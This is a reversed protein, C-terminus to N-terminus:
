TTAEIGVSQLIGVIILRWCSERVAQLAEVGSICLKGEGKRAVKGLIRGEIERKTSAQDGRTTWWCLHGLMPTTKMGTVLLQLWNFSPMFIPQGSPPNFYCPEGGLLQDGLESLLLGSSRNRHM